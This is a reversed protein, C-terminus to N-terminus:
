NGSALNRVMDSFANLSDIFPGASRAADAPGLTVGGKFKQNKIEQLIAAIDLTGSGIGVATGQADIDSLRVDLLHGSLKQVAQLPVIGARHFEALDACAGILPTHGQLAALIAAPDKYPGTDARNVISIGTRYEATLRDLLPLADGTPQCVIRKVKLKKALDLAKRCQAETSMEDTVSLTVFDMHVSKVKALLAAAQDSSLNLDVLIDKHEPSIPQGEVLDIHHVVMAHLRDIAEFVTSDGAATPEVLLQWSLKLLGAHDVHATPLDAPQSTPSPAPQAPVVNPWTALSAITFAFAFFIQLPRM